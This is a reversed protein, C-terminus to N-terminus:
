IANVPCVLECDTYLICETDNIPKGNQIFSRVDLDMLCIVNCTGCATCENGTPIIKILSLRSTPKMVPSVPCLIKCFARRDCMIFTLPIGLLYYIANGILMWYMEQKFLYDERVNFNLVFILFVPLAASIVLVLYRLNKM